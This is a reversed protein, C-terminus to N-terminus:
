RSIPTDFRSCRPASIASRQIFGDQTIVKGIFSPLDAAVDEMTKYDM